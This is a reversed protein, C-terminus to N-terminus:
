CSAGSCQCRLDARELSKWLPWPVFFTSGRARLERGAGETDGEEARETNAAPPKPPVFASARGPNQVIRHGVPASHNEL